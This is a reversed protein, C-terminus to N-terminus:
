LVRAIFLKLKVYLTKLMNKIGPSDVFSLAMVEREYREFAERSYTLAPNYYKQYWTYVPIAFNNKTSFRDFVEERHKLIQDIYTHYEKDSMHEVYDITEAVSGFDRMDVFCSKPIWKEVVPSGLYVPISLSLFSDLIKESLFNDVIANEVIFNFKYQNLVTYKKMHPYLEGKYNSMDVPWNRGYIDIHRFQVVEERRDYIKELNVDTFAETKSFYEQRSEKRLIMCAFKRQTAPKNFQYVLHNDYCIHSFCINTDNVLASLYTLILDHYKEMYAVTTKRPSHADYSRMVIPIRGKYMSLEKEVGTDIHDRGYPLHYILANEVDLIQEKYDYFNHVNFYQSLMFYHWSLTTEMQKADQDHITKMKQLLHMYKYTQEKFALIIFLNIKKM